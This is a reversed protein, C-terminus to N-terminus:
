HCGVKLCNCGENNIQVLNCCINSYKLVNIYCSARLVSHARGLIGGTWSDTDAGELTHENPKNNTHCRDTMKANRAPGIVNPTPLDGYPM